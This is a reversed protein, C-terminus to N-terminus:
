PKESGVIWMAFFQAGGGYAHGLARRAGDVQHEGAMGRVQLASEAFRILGSAGIPNSSLVGGSPNIPLDGDLSTSGDDVMKWGAGEDAFGLNEMWMPEYWSFPVYIEAVDIEARPDSIGAQRYVDAACDKGAQPNVQDRGAFMTPESRMASGAFWAPSRDGTLSDEASLVMACAGDSSPCSELYRLPDWIMM